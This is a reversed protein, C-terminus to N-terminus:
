MDLNGVLESISKYGHTELYENVGNLINMAARPDVFNATGVAVADAGALFFEIADAASFIGGMGIIPVNVAKSVEYVMKVAIPKICAGSLGAFVNAIKPKRKEIDIAMATFTNILSVIDSGADVVCKAFDSIRTVNPSLKTILPLRKAVKRVQSVVKAAQGLDTGFAIGGEKINPCSINIELAAIGEVCDLREAVKCYDDITKGWINVIVTAKERILFPLYEDKRIFDEVGPNQLGIANMMGSATECIRPVPNGHHPFPSIGKVVVAGLSSLPYFFAYEKGYGFTGSATMIPNKLTLPGLKTTLDEM